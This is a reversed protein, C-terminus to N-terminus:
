LFVRGGVCLSFSEVAYREEQKLIRNQDVALMDFELAITQPWVNSTRDDRSNQGHCPKLSSGRRAPPKLPWLEEIFARREHGM